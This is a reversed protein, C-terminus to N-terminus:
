RAFVDRPNWRVVSPFAIAYFLLVVLRFAVQVAPSYGQTLFEVLKTSGFALGTFGLIILFVNKPTLPAYFSSALLCISLVIMMLRFDGRYLTPLAYTRASHTTWSHDLSTLATELVGDPWNAYFSLQITQPRIGLPLREFIADFFNAFEESPHAGSFNVGLCPLILNSVKHSQALTVLQPVADAIARKKAEPSAAGKLFVVLLHTVPFSAPEQGSAQLAVDVM